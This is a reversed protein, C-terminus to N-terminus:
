GGLGLLTKGGAAFLGAVCGTLLTTLTAAWLAKLGLRSIFGMRSPILAGYGGVFIALSAIHAFGCLAYSAVVASRAYVFGGADLIRNLDVYAVFETMIAREGLLKAVTMADAPPVGMALALPWAPYSLLNKLSMAPWGVLGGVWGLLSDALAALSVFSLLLAVIGALLRMGEMSGQIAAEMYGGKKGVELDIERGLTVPNESEPEMLKAVVIAAPASILSASVLHGAINPFDTKLIMAYAGLVTSAVTSMGATLLLFFESRTLDQLYPRISGATEVGVFISSAAGLSEAGSTGLTRSFIRAFVKVVRQLVGAQYCLATLSMFFVITPLSQLALIFGISKEGGPGTQGPSLGLPGFLFHIGAQASNLLSAVLGNITLLFVRGTPLAFVLAGMILQLALGWILLRAIPKSRSKGASLWALACIFFIGFLSVFNYVLPASQM